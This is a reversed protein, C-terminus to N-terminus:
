LRRSQPHPGGTRGRSDSPGPRRTARHRRAAQQQQQQQQQAPPPPWLVQGTSNRMRTRHTKPAGRGTGGRGGGRVELLFPITPLHPRALSRGCVERPQLRSTPCVLRYSPPYEGGVVWVWGKRSCSGGRGGRSPPCWTPAPRRGPRGARPGAPAFGRGDVGVAVWRMM